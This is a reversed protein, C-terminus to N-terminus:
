KKWREHGDAIRAGLALFEAYRSAMQSPEAGATLSIAVVVAQATLTEKPPVEPLEPPAISGGSWFAGAASWGAATEYGTAEATSEASRRHDETPEETWREAAGLAAKDAPQTLPRRRSHFPLGM